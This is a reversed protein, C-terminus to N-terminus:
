RKGRSRSGGHGEGRRKGLSSPQKPAHSSEGRPAHVEHQLRTPNQELPTPDAQGQTSFYPDPQTQAAYPIDGQPPLFMSSEQLTSDLPDAYGQQQYPSQFATASSPQGYGQFPQSPNGFTDGPGYSLMPQGTYGLYAPETALPDYPPQFGTAYSPDEHTQFPNGYTDPPMYSPVPQATHASPPAYPDHPVQPAYSESGQYGTEPEDFSSLSDFQEVLSTAPRLERPRSRPQYSEEPEVPIDSSHADQMHRRQSSKSMFDKSCLNCSFLVGKGFHRKQHRHNGLLQKSPFKERCHQGGELPFNCVFTGDEQREDDSDDDKEEEEEHTEEHNRLELQLQFRQQCPHGDHSRFTCAYPNLREYQFRKTDHKGNKQHATLRKKTPFDMDCIARDNGFEIGCVFPRDGGRGAM